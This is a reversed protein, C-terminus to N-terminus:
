YGAAGLYPIADYVLSVKEAFPDFVGFTSISYASTGFGTPRAVLSDEIACLIKSRNSCAYLTPSNGQAFEAMYHFEAGAQSSVRMLGYLINDIVYHGADHSPTSPIIALLMPGSRPGVALQIKILPAEALLNPIHRTEMIRSLADQILLSAVGVEIKIAPTAVFKSAIDSPRLIQTQAM